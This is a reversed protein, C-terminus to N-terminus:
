SRIMIAIFIVPVAMVSLATMSVFGGLLEACFIRLYNTQFATKAVLYEYFTGVLLVPYVLSSAVDAGSHAINHNNESIVGSSPTAGELIIRFVRLIVDFIVLFGLVSFWVAFVHKVDRSIDLWFTGVVLPVINILGFVLFSFVFYSQAPIEEEPVFFRLLLDFVFYSVVLSQFFYGIAENLFNKDYSKLFCEEGFAIPHLAIKVTTSVYEKSLHLFYKVIEWM